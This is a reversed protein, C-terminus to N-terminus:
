MCPGRPEMKSKNKTLYGAQCGAAVLRMCAFFHCVPFVVTGMRPIDLMGIAFVTYHWQRAKLFLRPSNSGGKRGGLPLCLPLLDQVRSCVRSMVSLLALCAARLRVFTSSLCTHHPRDMCPGTFWEFVPSVSHFATRGIRYVTGMWFWYAPLLRPGTRSALLHQHKKTNKEVLASAM